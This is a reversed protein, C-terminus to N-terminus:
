FYLWIKGSIAHNKSSSFYCLLILFGVIKLFNPCLKRLVQSLKHKLLAKCIFWYTHKQKYGIFLLKHHLHALFWLLLHQTCSGFTSRYKSHWLLRRLVNQKRQGEKASCYLELSGLRVKRTVRSTWVSRPLEFLISFHALFIILSFLVRKDLFWDNSINVGFIVVELENLVM